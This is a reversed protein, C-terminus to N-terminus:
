KLLYDVIGMACVQMDVNIYKFVDDDQDIGKEALFETVSRLLENSVAGVKEDLSSDPKEEMVKKGADVFKPLWYWIQEYILQPNETRGYHGFFIQDVNLNKIKELSNLMADPDFQNPSTSPLVFEFGNTKTQPYYVGITDGTFVGNSVPDYISFHHKAHGPSDIFTLTRNEGIQLTAGDEKTILREEPVPVIPDFLEDFQDGYVARAGAILKSPNALHRKGKPHVVVKANPCKELLLGVGGAHDLHIHTVIIYKIDRPNISLSKLGKLLYPISPSASTEVITLDREHFLYSGTRQEMGLDYVDTLTIQQGLDITKSM